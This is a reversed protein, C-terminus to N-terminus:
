SLTLGAGASIKNDFIISYPFISAFQATKSMPHPVPRYGRLMDAIFFKVNQAKSGDISINFCATTLSLDLRM